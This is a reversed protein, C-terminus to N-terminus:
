SDKAYSVTGLVEVDVYAYVDGDLRLLQGIYHMNANLQDIALIISLHMTLLVDFDGDLKLCSWSNRVCLFRVCTM